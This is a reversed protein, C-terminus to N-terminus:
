RQQMHRAALMQSNSFPNVVPQGRGRGAGSAITSETTSSSSTSRPPAGWDEGFYSRNGVASRDILEEGPESWRSLAARGGPARDLHGVLTGYMANLFPKLAEAQEAETMNNMEEVTRKPLTVKPPPAIPGFPNVQRADYEREYDQPAMSVVRRMNHYLRDESAEVKRAETDETTLPPLDGFQRRTDEKLLRWHGTMNSPIGNPYYTCAVSLPLTDIIDRPAGYDFDPAMDPPAPFNQGASTFSGGSQSNASPFEWSSDTQLPNYSTAQFDTPYREENAAMSSAYSGARPFQRRGPPGAALPQPYGPRALPPNEQQAQGYGRYLPNAQSSASPGSAPFQYGRDLEGQSGYRTDSNVAGVESLGGNFPALYNGWGGAADINALVKKAALDGLRFGPKPMDPHTIPKPTYPPLLLSGTNSNSMSSVDPVQLTRSNQQEISFSALHQQAALQMPNPYKALRQITQMKTLGPIPGGQTGSRKSLEEESMGRFTSTPPPQNENNTSLGLTYLLSQLEDESVEPDIHQSPPPAPRARTTNTIPQLANAPQPPASRGLQQAYQMSNAMNLSPPPGRLQTQNAATDHMQVMSPLSIRQRAGERQIRNPATFQPAARPNVVTGVTSYAVPQPRIAVPEPSKDPSPLSNSALDSDWEQADFLEDGIM